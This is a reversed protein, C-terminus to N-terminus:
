TGVARHLRGIVPVREIGVDGVACRPLGLAVAQVEVAAHPVLDGDGAGRRESGAPGSARAAAPVLVSAQLRMRPPGTGPRILPGPPPAAIGRGPMGARVN